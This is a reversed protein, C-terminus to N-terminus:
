KSGVQTYCPVQSHTVIEVLFSTGSDITGLYKWCSPSSITLLWKVGLLLYTQEDNDYNAHKLCSHLPSYYDLHHTQFPM